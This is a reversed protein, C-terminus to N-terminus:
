FGSQHMEVCVLDGTLCSEVGQMLINTQTLNNASFVFIQFIYPTKKIKCVFLDLVSSTLSM